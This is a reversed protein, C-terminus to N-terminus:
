EGFVVERYANELDSAVARKGFRRVCYNRIERSNYKSYNRKVYSMAKSLSEVDGPPVLLGNEDNVFDNPGGSRTAIVPRGCAMAEIISVGFTEVYSSSLLVHSRQLLNRVEQRPLMGLFRVKDQIGLQRSLKELNGREEGDGAIELIVEGVGTDGFARSFAELLVDIAKNKNLLAVVAFRFPVLPLKEDAPHFFDVDVM